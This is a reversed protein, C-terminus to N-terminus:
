HVAYRAVYKAVGSGKRDALQQQSMFYWTFLSTKNGTICVIKFAAHKPGKQLGDDPVFIRLWFM